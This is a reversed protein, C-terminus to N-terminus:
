SLVHVVSIYFTIRSGRVESIKMKRERSDMIWAGDVIYNVDLRLYPNGEWKSSSTKVLRITICVM